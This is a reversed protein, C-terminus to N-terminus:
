FHADLVVNVSRDLPRGGTSQTWFVYEGYVSVYPTFAYILGPQHLTESIGVDRYRVHSATYRVALKGLDAQAGGWFYLNNRSGPAVPYTLVHRGRQLEVEGFASLKGVRVQADLAGRYVVEAPALVDFDALFRQGSLGFGVSADQGVEFSPAFRLVAINRRRAGPLWLTDRDTLSGNTSGDVPFFQAAYEVSTRATPRWTDEISVGNEPALKIGDFYPLGGYFSGDWARGFRSSLKGAKVTVSKGRWYGYLEQVWSPGTFFARFKTDRFRPNFYLGFGKYSWDVSLQAFFVDVTNKTGLSLPQYYWLLAGGHVEPLKAGLAELRSLLDPEPTHASAEEPPGEARACVAVLTLLLAFRRASRM